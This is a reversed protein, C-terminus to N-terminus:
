IGDTQLTKGKDRDTLAYIAKDVPFDLSSVEDVREHLKQVEQNYHDATSKLRHIYLKQDEIVLNSENIIKQM